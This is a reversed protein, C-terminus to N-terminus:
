TEDYYCLTYEQATRVHSYKCLYKKQIEEELLIILPELAFGHCNITDVDLHIQDERNQIQVQLKSAIEEVKAMFDTNTRCYNLKREDSYDFDPVVELQKLQEAEKRKILNELSGTSIENPFHSILETM